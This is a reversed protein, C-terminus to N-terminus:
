RAKARKANANPISARSSSLADVRQSLAGLQESLLKIDGQSESLQRKTADLQQSLDQRAADLDKMQQRLQGVSKAMEDSPAVSPPNQAVTRPSNGSPMTLPVNATTSSSGSRDLLTWALGAAIAFVILLVIVMLLGTQGRPRHGPAIESMAVYLQKPVFRESSHVFGRKSLRASHLDTSHPETALSGISM